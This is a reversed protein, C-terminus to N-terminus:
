FRISGCCSCRKPWFILALGFTLIVLLVKFVPGVKIAIHKDYRYCQECFLVMRDKTGSSKGPEPSSLEPMTVSKGAKGTRSVSSVIRSM